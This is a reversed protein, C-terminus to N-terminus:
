LYQYLSNWLFHQCRSYLGIYYSFTILCFNNFIYSCTLKLHNILLKNCWCAFSFVAFKKDLSVWLWEYLQIGMGKKLTQTILLFTGSYSKFFFFFVVKFYCWPVERTSWYNLIWRAICLTRTRDRIPASLDWTGCLLQGPVAVLVWCLRIM